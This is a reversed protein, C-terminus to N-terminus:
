PAPVAARQGVPFEEILAKPMQETVTIATMPSSTARVAGRAASSGESANSLIFLCPSTRRRELGSSGARDDPRPVGRLDRLRSGPALLRRAVRRGPRGAARRRQGSHAGGRYVLPDSRRATGRHAGGAWILAGRRRARPPEPPIPEPPVPRPRCQTPRSPEGPRRTGDISPGAAPRSRDAGRESPYPASELERGASVAVPSPSRAPEPRAGCRQGPSSPRGSRRPATQAELQRLRELAIPDEQIDANPGYARQRLSRLEDGFQEDM